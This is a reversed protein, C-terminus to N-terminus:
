GQRDLHRQPTSIGNKSLNLRIMFIPITQLLALRPLCFLRHWFYRLRENKIPKIPYCFPDSLASLPVAGLPKSSTIRVGFCVIKM